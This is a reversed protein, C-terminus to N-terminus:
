PTLALWGGQPATGGAQPAAISRAPGRQPASSQGLPVSPQGGRAPGLTSRGGHPASPQGVPTGPGVLQDLLCFCRRIMIRFFASSHWASKKQDHDRFFFNRSFISSRPSM